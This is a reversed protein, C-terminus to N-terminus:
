DDHRPEQNKSLSALAAAKTFFLEDRGRVSWSTFHTYPCGDDTCNAACEAPHCVIQDDAQTDTSM